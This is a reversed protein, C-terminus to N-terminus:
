WIAVVSHGGIKRSHLESPKISRIECDTEAACMVFIREKTTLREASGVYFAIFICGVPVVHRGNDTTFLDKPLIGEDIVRNVERLEVGAVVAAETTKLLEAHAAM